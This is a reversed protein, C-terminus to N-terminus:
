SLSTDILFRYSGIFRKRSLLLILGVTQGTRRATTHKGAEAVPLFHLKRTTSFRIALDTMSAAPSGCTRTSSYFCVNPRRNRAAPTGSSVRLNQLFQNLPVFLTYSSLDPVRRASFFAAVPRALLRKNRSLFSPAGPSIPRCREAISAQEAPLGAERDFEPYNTPLEVREPSM